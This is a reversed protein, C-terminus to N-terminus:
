AYTPLDEQGMVIGDPDFRVYDCGWHRAFAIVTQVAPPTVQARWAKTEADEDPDPIWLIFGGGDVAAALVGPATDLGVRLHMPLHETSLDMVQVIRPKM